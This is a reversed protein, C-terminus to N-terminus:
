GVPAFGPLRALADGVTHFSGTVLMTQAGEQVTDLARAFDPEWVVAAREGVGAGAGAGVAARGPQTRAWEAVEEFLWRREPAVSPAISLVLRDVEPAVRALM